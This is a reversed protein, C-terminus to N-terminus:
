HLKPGGDEPDDDGRTDVLHIAPTPAPFRQPRDIETLAHTLADRLERAAGDSIRVTTSGVSVHVAGCSCRDIKCNPTRVLTKVIHQLSAEAPWALLGRPRLTASFVANEAPPFNILFFSVITYPYDLKDM